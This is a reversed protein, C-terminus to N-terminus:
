PRGGPRRRRVPRHISPLACRPRRRSGCPPSPVARRATPPSVGAERGSLSGTLRQQNVIRFRGCRPVRQYARGVYGLGPSRLTEKPSVMDKGDSRSIAEWAFRWGSVSIAALAPMGASHRPRVARAGCLDREVGDLLHGIARLRFVDNDGGDGGGRKTFALGGGDTETLRELMPDDAVMAMRWGEIPGVKPM